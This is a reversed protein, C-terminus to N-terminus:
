LTVWTREFVLHNVLQQRAHEKLGKITIPMDDDWDIYMDVYDSEIDINNISVGAKGVDEIFAYKDDLVYFGDKDQPIELTLNLSYTVAIDDINVTM